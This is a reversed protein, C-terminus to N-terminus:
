NRAKGSVNRTTLPTVIRIPKTMRSICCHASPSTSSMGTTGSIIMQEAKSVFNEITARLAWSWTPSRVVTTSSLTSPMRIM